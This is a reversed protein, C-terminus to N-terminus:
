IPKGATFGSPIRTLAFRKHSIFEFYNWVFHIFDVNSLVGTPASVDVGLIFFQVRFATGRTVEYIYFDEDDIFSGLNRFTFDGVSFTPNINDAM